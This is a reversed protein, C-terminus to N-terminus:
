HWKNYVLTFQLFVSSVFAKCLFSSASPLIFSSCFCSHSVSWGSHIIHVTWMQIYHVYIKCTIQLGDLILTVVLIISIIRLLLGCHNTWLIWSKFLYFYYASIRSRSKPNSTIMRWPTVVLTAIAGRVTYYARVHYPVIRQTSRLGWFVESSETKRPGNGAPSGNRNKEM